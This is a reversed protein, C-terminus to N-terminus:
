HAADNMIALVTFLSDPEIEDELAAVNKTTMGCSKCKHVIQYGKRSNYEIAVPEMLGGCAAARDGPYVDLHVSYLCQTCHNRCGAKAPPVHHGCHLCVFGDNRVIFRKTQM